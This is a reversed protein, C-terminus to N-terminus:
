VALRGRPALTALRPRSLSSSMTGSTAKPEGPEPVSLVPPTSTVSRRGVSAETKTGRAGGAGGSRGGAVGSPRMLLLSKPELASVEPSPVPVNIAGKMRAAM